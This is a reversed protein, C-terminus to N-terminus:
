IANGHLHLCYGPIRSFLEPTELNIRAVSFAYGVDSYAGLVETLVVIRVALGAPAYTRGSCSWRDRASIDGKFVDLFKGQVVVVPPVSMLLWRIPELVRRVNQKLGIILGLIFGVLCGFFLSLGFRELTIELNHWFAGIQVMM